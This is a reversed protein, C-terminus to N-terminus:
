SRSLFFVVIPILVYVSIMAVIALTLGIANDYSRIPTRRVERPIQDFHCM